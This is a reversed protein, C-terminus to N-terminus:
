EKRKRLTTRTIIAGIGFTCAFFGKLITKDSMLGFYKETVKILAQGYSDVSTGTAPIGFDEQLEKAADIFRADWVLDPVESIKEKSLLFNATDEIADIVTENFDIQFNIKDFILEFAGASIAVGIEEAADSAVNAAGNKDETILDFKDLHGALFAIISQPNAYAFDTTTHLSAPTMAYAGYNMMVKGVGQDVAVSPTHEWATFAQIDDAELSAVMQTVELPIWTFNDFDLDSVTDFYRACVQEAGTGWKIGVQLGVLDYWSTYASATPIITSYRDGRQITGIILANDISGFLGVTKSDSGCNVDLEGAIMANNNEGGSAFIRHDVNIGYKTWYESIGKLVFEGPYYQGGYRVDIDAGTNNGIFFGIGIGGGIGVVLAVIGITILKYMLKM